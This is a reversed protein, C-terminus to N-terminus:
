ASFSECLGDIIKGGCFPCESPTATEPAFSQEAAKLDAIGEDCQAAVAQCIAEKSIGDQNQLVYNKIHTLIEVSLMPEGKAASRYPNATQRILPITCVVSGAM